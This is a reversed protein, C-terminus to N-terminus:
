DLVQPLAKDPNFDDIRELTNIDLNGIAMQLGKDDGLNSSEYDDLNLHYAFPFKCHRMELDFLVLSSM